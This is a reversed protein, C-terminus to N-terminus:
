STATRLCEEHWVGPVGSLEYLEDGGHYFTVNVVDAERGGFQFYESELPHHYAWRRSFLELDPKDLIRVRTGIPFEPNYKGKTQGM